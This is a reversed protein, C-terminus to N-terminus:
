IIYFNNYDLGCLLPLTLMFVIEVGCLEVCNMHNIFIKSTSIVPLILKPCVSNQYTKLWIPEVITLAHAM